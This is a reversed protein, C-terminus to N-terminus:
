GFWIGLVILWSFIGWVLWGVLFDIMFIGGTLWGYFWSDLVGVLYFGWVLFGFVVWGFDGFVVLHFVLWLFDRVLHVFDWGVLSLGM